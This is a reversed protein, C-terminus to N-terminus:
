LVRVNEWYWPGAVPSEICLFSLFSNSLALSTWAFSFASSFDPFNVGEVPGGFPSFGSLLARKRLCIQRTRRGRFIGRPREDRALLDM